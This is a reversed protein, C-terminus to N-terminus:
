QVVSEELAVPIEMTVSSAKIMGLAETKAAQPLSSYIDTLYLLSSYLM